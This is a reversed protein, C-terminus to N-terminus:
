EVGRQEGKLRRVLELTEFPARRRNYLGELKDELADWDDDSPRRDPDPGDEDSREFKWRVQGKGPFTVEVMLKVGKEIKEVWEIKRRL